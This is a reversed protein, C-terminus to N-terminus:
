QWVATTLSFATHACPAVYPFVPILHPKLAANM